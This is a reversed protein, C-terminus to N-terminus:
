TTMAVLLCFYKIFINQTIKSHIWKEGLPCVSLIVSLYVFFRNLGRISITLPSIIFFYKIKGFFYKNHNKEGKEGRHAGKLCPLYILWSYRFISVSCNLSLGVKQRKLIDILKLQKKFGAMLENKQKELRKNDALLQEVKRKEQDTTEQFCINFPSLSFPRLTYLYLLM